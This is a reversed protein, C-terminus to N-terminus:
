GPPCRDHWPPRVSLVLGSAARRGTEQGAFTQPQGPRDLDAPARIHHVVTNGTQECLECRDKLLRTVLQRNSYVVLPKRGAREFGPKWGRFATSFGHQCGTSWRAM